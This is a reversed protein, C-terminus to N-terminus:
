GELGADVATKLVEPAYSEIKKGNVVITPTSNFGAKSFDDTVKATWGKYTQGTIAPEVVAKDAGAAVALEVLKADPLGPGNEAPQNDFLAKHFALFADPKSNVVAAAANLARTSYEDASLHDLIAVPKYIVKVTGDKVWQDIQAANATEANKCAPCLFDEYMEITVKATSSGYLVGGNLLNAPAANAAAATSADRQDASDKASRILMYSVVLVAIVAIVAGTITLNRRKAEAKAAEARLEAAKERTSKATRANTM